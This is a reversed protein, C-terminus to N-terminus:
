QTNNILVTKEINMKDTQMIIYYIGSSLNLNIIIVAQQNESLTVEKNTILQGLVNTLKLHYTKGSIGQIIVEISGNSPSIPLIDEIVNNSSCNLSIINSYTFQGDLDTQKLRYYTTINFPTYDSVSYIQAVNSNGQSPLQTIISFNEGDISKEITFYDNNQESATKWTLKNSGNNCVAIFSLLEIPLPLDTSGLTIRIAGGVANNVTTSSVFDSGANVVSTRPEWYTFGGYNVQQFMELNAEIHGNLEPNGAGGWYYFNNVTLTSMLTPQLEYYRLVSYNGTYTGSGQQREHGRILVTNGLATGPTFNLGLGAVNGSPNVRTVSITGTGFGDMGFSDTAKIRNIVTEGSVTGSSSLDITSSKLDVSGQSILLTGLVSINRGLVIGGGTNNVSLNSFATTNTGQITQITNGTMHVFSGTNCNTTGNNTWNGSGTIAVHTAPQLTVYVTNLRIGGQSYIYTYLFCFINILLFKMM